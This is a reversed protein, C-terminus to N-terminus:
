RLLVLDAFGGFSMRQEGKIKFREKDDVIDEELFLVVWGHEGDGTGELCLRGQRALSGGRQGHGRSQRIGTKVRGVLLDAKTDLTACLEELTNFDKGLGDSDSESGLTTM